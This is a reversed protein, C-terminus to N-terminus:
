AKTRCFRGCGNPGSVCCHTERGLVWHVQRLVVLDGYSVSVDRLEVLPGSAPLEYPRPAPPPLEGLAAAPPNMLTVVRQDALTDASSGAALVPQTQRLCACM